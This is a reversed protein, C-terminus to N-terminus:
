QVAAPAPQGGDQTTGITKKRLIVASILTVVLGIPFPEIFTMAVNVLPNDYMAKLSKMQQLQADIAQPSAGSAKAKSVIYSAYKDLFDPMFKFYMIEWAVM